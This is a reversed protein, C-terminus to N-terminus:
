QPRSSQRRNDSSHRSSNQGGGARREEIAIHTLAALDAAIMRELLLMAMFGAAGVASVAILAWRAWKEENGFAAMLLIGLMPVLITTALYIRAM